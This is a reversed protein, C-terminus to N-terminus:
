RNLVLTRFLAPLKQSIEKPECVVLNKQYMDKYDELCSEMYRREGFMIPIVVVGAATADDVAKRVEAKASSRSGYASPLGDSLVFLIKRQEPRKALEMAATRIHASDENCGTPTITSLSSYAFNTSGKANFPKLCIHEAGRATDFLAIKTPFLGRAVEEIVAATRRAAYSKTARRGIGESMSGSNDILLYFAVSPKEVAPRYFIDRDGVAPRWLSRPDLYGSKMGYKAGSRSELVKLIEKRLLRAENEIDNPLPQPEIEPWRVHFGSNGHGYAKELMKNLEEEGPGDPQNKEAQEKAEQKVAVEADAQFAADMAVIEADSYGKDPSAAAEMSAFSCTSGQGDTVGTEPGSGSQVGVFKGDETSRLKPTGNGNGTGEGEDDGDDGDGSKAKDGGGAGCGPGYEPRVDAGNQLEEQLDKADKLLNNIYPAIDSLFARTYKYCGEADSLIAKDIWHRSAMVVSEMEEGAYLSAGAPFTGTKAYSLIVGVFHHYESLPDQAKEEIACGNRIGDNLYKFGVYLGPHEEVALQEIRGDEIINNFNAAISRFIRGDYGYGSMEQEYEDMLRKINEFVSHNVHSAEHALLTRMITGWHERAEDTLFMDPMSCVITKSDTYSEGGGDVIVQVKRADGILLGSLMGRLVRVVAFKKAWALFNRMMAEIAATKEAAVGQPVGPAAPITPTVSTTPAANKKAKPM